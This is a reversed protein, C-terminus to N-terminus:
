EWHLENRNIDIDIGFSTHDCHWDLKDKNKEVRKKEMDFEITVIQISDTVLIYIYIYGGPSIIPYNHFCIIAHTHSLFFFLFSIECWILVHLYFFLIWSLRRNCYLLPSCKVLNLNIRNLSFYELMEFLSLQLWGSNVRTRKKGCILDIIIRNARLVVNSNRTIKFDMWGNFKDAHMTFHVFHYHHPEHKFTEIFLHSM